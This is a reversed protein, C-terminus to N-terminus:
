KSSLVYGLVELLKAGALGEQSAKRANEYGTDIAWETGQYDFRIVLRTPELGFDAQTPFGELVSLIRTVRAVLFEISLEDVRLYIMFTTKLPSFDQCQAGSMVGVTVVSVFVNGMDALILADQIRNALDTQPFNVLAPQTCDQPLFTASPTLALAPNRTLAVTTETHRAFAATMTQM